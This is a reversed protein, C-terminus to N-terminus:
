KLILRLLNEEPNAYVSSAYEASDVDSCSWLPKADPYQIGGWIHIYDTIKAYLKDNRNLTWQYKTVTNKTSSDERHQSIVYMNESAKPLKTKTFEWENLWRSSKAGATAVSYTSYEYYSDKYNGTHASVEVAAEVLKLHPHFTYLNYQATSEGYFKGDFQVEEVKEPQILVRLGGDTKCDRVHRYYATFYGTALMYIPIPLILLACGIVRSKWSKTFAVVLGLLTINLFILLYALLWPMRHNEM